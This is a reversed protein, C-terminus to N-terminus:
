AQRRPILKHTGDCWPLRSSKDCRCLAVVARDVPHVTGDADEVSTAGRVLMPGHRRIVVDPHDFERESM